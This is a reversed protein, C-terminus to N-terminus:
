FSLMASVNQAQPKEEVIQEATVSRHAGQAANELELNQSKSTEVITNLAENTETAM